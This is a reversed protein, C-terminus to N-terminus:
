ANTLDKRRVQALVTLFSSGCGFLSLAAALISAAFHRFVLEPFEVHVEHHLATTFAGRSPWCDWGRSRGQSKHPRETEFCQQRGQGMAFPVGEKGQVRVICPTPAFIPVM